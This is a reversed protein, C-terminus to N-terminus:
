LRELSMGDRRGAWADRWRREADRAGARDGMERRAQALGWYAWGNNPSDILTRYFELEAREPQGARLLASALSQRVPYWWYPPEMYNLGAQIDTARQYFDVAADVDGGADAARGRVVLEMIELVAPAPVAGDTLPSWDATERLVGIAVAEEVAEDPRGLKALAEGRAYRWAAEVFPMVGAEPGAAALLEEPSEFQARAYWPAAKIPQVWAAAAAMELPLAADLRGAMFLATEADGAMQASTLAFHVNHPYYGYRYIVGGDTEALLAEDAEVADINAQLSDKFRGIRYFTHSPMHVLHGAAPALGVLRDADDEARWPNESAETM